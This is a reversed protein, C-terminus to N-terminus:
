LVISCWKQSWTHTPTICLGWRLWDISIELHNFGWVWVNSVCKRRYTNKRLNTRHSAFLWSINDIIRYLYCNSCTVRERMWQNNILYSISDWSIIKLFNYKVCYKCANWAREDKFWTHVGSLITESDVMGSNRRLLCKPQYLTSSM